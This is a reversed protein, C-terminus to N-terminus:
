AAQRSFWKQLQKSMQSRDSSPNFFPDRRQHADLERRLHAPMPKAEYNQPQPDPVSTPFPLPAALATEIAAELAAEQTRIDRAKAREASAQLKTIQDLAKHWARRAAAEYRNLKMLAQDTSCDIRFREAVAAWTGPSDGTNLLEAEIAHVRRIKWQAQALEGVLFEETPTEPAYEGILRDLLREYAARDEHRLVAFAGSSLGHTVSNQAVASKGATTKPGTSHQANARNALVQATTAMETKLIYPPHIFFPTDQPHM